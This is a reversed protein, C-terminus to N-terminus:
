AQTQFTNGAADSSQKNENLESLRKDMQKITDKIVKVFDETMDVSLGFADLADKKEAFEELLDSPANFQMRKNQSKGKPQIQAM